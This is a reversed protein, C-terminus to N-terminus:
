TQGISNPMMTSRKRRMLRLVSKFKQLILPHGFLSLFGLMGGDRGFQRFLLKLFINPGMSATGFAAILTLDREVFDEIVQQVNKVSATLPRGQLLPYVLIVLAFGLNGKLRDVVVETLPATIAAELSDKFPTDAGNHSVEVQRFEIEIATV